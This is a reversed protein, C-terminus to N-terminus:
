KGFPCRPFNCVECELCLSGHGMRALDRRTINKGALLYPMLLDFATIKSHLACAPVGMVQINGIRALLTMAGPLVPIGYLLDEAGADMLGYRTVDDPDVSLGATTVLLDMGMNVLERIGDCIAQRNDPVVLAHVVECGFKQSKARILPEFEDRVLGRFVETGTVLIGIKARRTPLVTMLPSDLVSLAKNFLDQALFLPIARSAGVPRGEAVLQGSQRTACMVGPIMNFAELRQEDIVLLGSRTARFTIKGERPSDKVVVGEGAMARAFNAAADNEHIWGPVAQNGEELYINQRGMQQLRCLDGASITQGHVFAAKKSKHAIIETMDHLVKQGIAEAAPVAILNPQALLDREDSTPSYPDEGQCGRCVPGHKTPFAEGCMPCDITTGVRRKQLLKPKVRIHKVNFIASGAKHIEKELLSTDQASKPTLKYFWNKIEPWAKIKECDLAVRVGSGDHKDYLALAFRGLDEIKLWGNGMTCLTLLQIADPLCHSTECVADFMVRQGIHQLATAVMRGGIILGPAAFGHFSQILDIYADFSYCNGKHDHCWVENHNADLKIEVDNTNM